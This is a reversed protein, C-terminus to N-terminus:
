ADKDDVFLTIVLTLVGLGMLCYVFISWGWASLFSGSLTGIISSGVYYFLWYTSTATSKGGTALLSVWRSATTHAGFFGFTLIGLGLIFIWIRGSLLMLLGIILTILLAKLVASSSYSDSWRGALISGGIGATYMVYVFAILYHPLSFPSAELRYNLYNYVSVFIGMMLAALIFLSLLRPRRLFSRMQRFKYAPRVKQSNFFNSKPLVRQFAFALALGFIGIAFTAGRWGIWSGLLGAAVRGSMGGLINGSLYLSIVLGLSAASVEESLYALAVASIGAISMGKLFNFVVLTTFGPSAASLVTLGGAVFMSLSMLNKRPWRDAWFALTFLGTAMGATGASVALSSVAPSLSFTRGLEPLLPQFLYLQAFVSIGTLGVGWQIRRFRATDKKAKPTTQNTTKFM